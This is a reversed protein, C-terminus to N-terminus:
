SRTALPWELDNDIPDVPWRCVRWMGGADFEEIKSLRKAALEKTSWISDVEAPFYSDLEVVWVFQKTVGVEEANTALDRRTPPITEPEPRNHIHRRLFDDLSVKGTM